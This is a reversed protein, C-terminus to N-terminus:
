ARCQGSRLDARIRTHFDLAFKVQPDAAAHGTLQVRAQRTTVTPPCQALGNCPQPCLAEDSHPVAQVNVQFVTIALSNPDNLPQYSGGDTMFELVKGNLRFAKIDAADAQNNESGGELAAQSTNFQVSGGAPALKIQTYPNAAATATGAQWLGREAEAWAGAQGLERRLLEGVARMEQQAQTELRLRQHDKLQSLMLTSAAAVMLLGITLGILLEVLTFGHNRKM